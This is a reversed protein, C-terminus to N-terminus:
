LEHSEGRFIISHLVIETGLKSNYNVEEATDGDQYVESKGLWNFLLKSLFLKVVGFIEIFYFGRTTMRQGEGMGRTVILNM